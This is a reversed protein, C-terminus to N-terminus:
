WLRVADMWIVSPIMYIFYCYRHLSFKMENTTISNWWRIQVWVFYPYELVEAPNGGVIRPHVRHQASAVSVHHTLSWGAAFAIIHHSSVRMSLAVILSDPSTASCWCFVLCSLYLKFPSHSLTCPCSHWWSSQNLSLAPKKVVKQNM